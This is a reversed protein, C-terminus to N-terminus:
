QLTKQDIIIMSILAEKDSVLVSVGEWDTAADKKTPNWDKPEGIFAKESYYRDCFDKIGFKVKRGPHAVLGYDHYVLTFKDSTNKSLAWLTDTMVSKYDHMADIFIVDYHGEPVKSMDGCIAVAHKVDHEKLLANVQDIQSQETDCGVMTKCHEAVTVFTLGSAVGIELYSPDKYGKLINILDERLKETTTHGHTKKDPLKM